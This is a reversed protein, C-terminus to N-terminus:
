GRDRPSPSTYLLCTATPTGLVVKLGAAHLTDIARELWDFDYHRDTPELLSWAFEGVRVHTLGLAVMRTADEAWQAEPWHEPYYCVGLSPATM